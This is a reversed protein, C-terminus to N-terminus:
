QPLQPVVIARDLLSHFLKVQVRLRRSFWVWSRGQDRFVIANKSIRLFAGRQYKIQAWFRRDFHTTLRWEGLLIGGRMVRHRSFVTRPRSNEPRRQRPWYKAHNLHAGQHVVFRNGPMMKLDGQLVFHTLQRLESAIPSEPEDGGKAFAPGQVCL